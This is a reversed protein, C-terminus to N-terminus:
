YRLSGNKLFTDLTESGLYAKLRTESYFAAGPSPGIDHTFRIEITDNFVGNTLKLDRENRLGDGYTMITLRDANTIGKVALNVMGFTLKPAQLKSTYWMAQSLDLTIKPSEAGGGVKGEKTTHVPGKCCQMALAFSLLVLLHYKM